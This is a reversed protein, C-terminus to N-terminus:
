QFPLRATMPDVRSGTGGFADREDYQEAHVARAVRYDYEAQDIPYGKAVPWIEGLEDVPWGAICAPFDPDGALVGNIEIQWRWSRDLQARQAVPLHMTEPDDPPGFWIRIPVDVRGARRKPLLYFGPELGDAGEQIPNFVDDIM